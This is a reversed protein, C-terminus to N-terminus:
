GERETRCLVLIGVFLLVNLNAIDYPKFITSIFIAWTCLSFLYIFIRFFFDIELNFFGINIPFSPFFSIVFLNFFLFYFSLLVM